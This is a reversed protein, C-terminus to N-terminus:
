PQELIKIDRRALDAIARWTRKEADDVIPLHLITECEQAIEAFARKAWEIKESPTM